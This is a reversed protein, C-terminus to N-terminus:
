KELNTLRPLATTRDPFAKFLIGVQKTECRMIQYHGSPADTGFEVDLTSLDAINKDWGLRCLLPPPSLVSHAAITM